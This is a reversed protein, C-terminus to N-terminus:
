NQIIVPECNGNKIAEVLQQINIIEKTFKTGYKLLQFKHHADSGGTRPKNYQKALQEAKKIDEISSLGNYVEIADIYPILEEYRKKELVNCIGYGSYPHAAIIVGDNEHIYDMLEFMDQRIQICRETVGFVLFDGYNNLIEIGAFLNIGDQKTSRNFLRNHDTIAFSIDTNKAHNIYDLTKLSTNKSLESHNHLDIIM